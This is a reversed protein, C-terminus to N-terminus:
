KFVTRSYAIAYILRFIQLFRENEFYRTIKFVAFCGIALIKLYNQLRLKVVKNELIFGNRKKESKNSKRTM